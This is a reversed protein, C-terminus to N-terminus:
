RARPRDAMFEIAKAQLGPATRAPRKFPRVCLKTVGLDSGQHGALSHWDGTAHSDSGHDRLLPLTIVARDFDSAVARMYSSPPSGTSGNPGPLVSLREARSASPRATPSSRTSTRVLVAHPSWIAARKSTEHSLAQWEAPSVMVRIPIFRSRSPYSRINELRVPVPSLSARATTACCVSTSVRIASAIASRLPVSDTGAPNTSPRPRTSASSTSNASPPQRVWNACTASQNCRSPSRSSVEASAKSSESAMSSPRPILQLCPSASGALSENSGRRASRISRARSRRSTKRASTSFISSSEAVISLAVATHAALHSSTPSSSSTSPLPVIWASASVHGIVSNM